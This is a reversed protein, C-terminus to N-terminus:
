VFMRVLVQIYIYYGPQNILISTIPIYNIAYLIASTLGANLKKIPIPLVLVFDLVSVYPGQVKLQKTTSPDDARPRKM